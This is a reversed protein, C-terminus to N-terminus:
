ATESRRAINRRCVVSIGRNRGGGRVARLVDRVTENPEVTTNYYPGEFVGELREVLVARHHGALADPEGKAQERVFALTPLLRLEQHRSRLHQTTRGSRRPPQPTM